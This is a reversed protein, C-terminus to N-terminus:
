ENCSCEGEDDTASEPEPSAIGAAAELAAIREELQACKRCCPLRRVAAKVLNDVTEKLGDSAKRSEGQLYEAFKKGEEETLDARQAFEKAFAEAKEKTLNALGLGVYLGKKAFEFM